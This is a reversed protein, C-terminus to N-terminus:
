LRSVIKEISIGKKNIETFDVVREWSSPQNKFFYTKIIRKIKKLKSIIKKM